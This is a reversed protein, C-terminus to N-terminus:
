NANFVPLQDVWKRALELNPHTYIKTTESSSHALLVQRDEINLGLDRLTNNFTTRFSHLTAKPRGKACLLAQMFHRPKALNDNLKRESTAYLVPFIPKDVGDQELQNILVDALPLEHIRRSKRVLSVIASRKFDINGYTLMSVDGARLGTRYLFEYYLKWSGAGEFIIQLDIPEMMRHRDAKIIRPLTVHEAPNSDLLKEVVARKLMIKLEKIHNHKTKPACKLFDIYGDLVKINIESISTIGVKSLFTKFKRLVVSVFNGTNYSVRSRVKLYEDMFTHLNGTMINNSRLFSLDGELLMMDWRLQLRSALHKARMGTSMRVRKGRVYSSYVWYPSKKRKYLTSM